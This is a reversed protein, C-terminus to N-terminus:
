FLNIKGCSNHKKLLLNKLILNCADTFGGTINSVELSKEPPVPTHKSAKLFLLGLFSLNNDTIQTTPNIM